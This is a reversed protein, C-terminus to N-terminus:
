KKNRKIGMFTDVQKQLRSQARKYSASTIERPEKNPNYHERFYKKAYEIKKEEESMQKEPAKAGKGEIYSKMTELAKVRKEYERYASTDGSDTRLVGKAARIREEAIKELLATGTTKSFNDSLPNGDNFQGLMKYFHNEVNASYEGSPTKDYRSLGKSRLFENAERLIRQEYSDYLDNAGGPAQGPTPTKVFGSKKDEKGM